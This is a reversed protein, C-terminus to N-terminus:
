LEVEYCLICFEFLPSQHRIKKKRSVISKLSNVIKNFDSGCRIRNNTEACAGDLSIAIIDINHDFIANELDGLKMGNTCFYKRLPYNDLYKIIEVFNPHVTPEGWGFLAVEESKKLAPVLVDLWKLSFVTPTFKKTERGCMICHLNCANTLELVIRRPYSILKIDGREIEEINLKSNLHQEETLPFKDFLYKTKARLILVLM